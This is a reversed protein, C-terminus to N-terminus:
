QSRRPMLFFETADVSEYMERLPMKVLKGNMNRPLPGGFSALRRPRKYDALHTDYYDALLETDVLSVDPVVMLPVTGWRPDDIGIVAIEELGPLAGTLTLEIEAPYVNLGGSVFMDKRRGLVFLYGEEDILGLDGTDLWGDKLVTATHAEQNLYGKMLSPGSLSIRGEEGPKLVDGEENVIRVMRNMLPRGASGFHDEAEHAFLITSCEGSSETLGWGQAVHVGQDQWRRLMELPIPGGGAQVYKLSSLDATTFNPHDMIMQFIAAVSGWNAVGETEILHLLREPDSDAALVTTAGICLAERIFYCMGGAFALPQPILLPDRWTIGDAVPRAAATARLSGHTLLAGKPV